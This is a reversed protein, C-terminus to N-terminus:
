KNHRLEYNFPFNWAGPCQRFDLDPVDRQLRQLRQLFHSRLNLPQVTIDSFILNIANIKRRILVANPFVCSAHANGGVANRRNAAQDIGDIQLLLNRSMSLIASPTKSASQLAEPGLM